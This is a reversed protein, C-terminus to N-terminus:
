TMDRAAPAMRTTRELALGSAGVLAGKVNVGAAISRRLTFVNGKDYIFTKLPLNQGLVFGAVTRDESDSETRLAAISHGVCQLM